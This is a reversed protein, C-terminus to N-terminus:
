KSLAPKTKCCEPLEKVAAEFDDQFGVVDYSHLSSKRCKSSCREPNEEVESVTLGAFHTTYWNQLEGSIRQKVYDELSLGSDVVRKHLCHHADERVHYYHSVIRDIPNRLVTVTVTDPHVFDLLEHTSHGLVM